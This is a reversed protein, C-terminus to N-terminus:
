KNFFLFDNVFKNFISSDISEGDEIFAQNIEHESFKNTRQHLLANFFRSNFEPHGQVTLVQNKYRTIYNPCFDNGALVEFNRGPEIVQDKHIAILSMSEGAKLEGLDQNLVVDYTGLGLGEEIKRVKGGLAHNIVQHGFCIGLMKKRAYFAKRIFLVLNNVWDLGDNVGSPSGGIIYVDCDNVDEPLQNKEYVNWLVVSGYLSLNLQTQLCNAYCGFEELLGDPVDGCLLIGIRM